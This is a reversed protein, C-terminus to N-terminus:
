VRGEKKKKQIYIDDGYRIISDGAELEEIRFVWNKLYKYEYGTDGNMKKYPLIRGRM